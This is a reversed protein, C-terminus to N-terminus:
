TNLINRNFFITYYLNVGGTILSYVVYFKIMRFFLIKGTITVSELAFKILTNSIIPSIAYILSMFFNMYIYEKDVKHLYKLISINNKLTNIM